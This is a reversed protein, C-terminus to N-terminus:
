LGIDGTDEEARHLTIELVTVKVFGKPVPLYVWPPGAKENMKLVPPILGVEALFAPTNV